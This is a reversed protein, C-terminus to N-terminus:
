SCYEAHWAPLRTSEAVVSMNAINQENDVLRTEEIKALIDRAVDAIRTADPRIASPSVSALGDFRDIYAQISEVTEPISAGPGPFGFTPPEIMQPQEDITACFQASAAELAAHKQEDEIAKYAMAGGIGAVVTTVLSIAIAARVFGHVWGRRRASQMAAVISAILGAPPVLFALIFAVKEAVTTRDLDPPEEYNGTGGGFFQTGANPDDDPPPTSAFTQSYGDGSAPAPAAAPVYAAEPEYVPPAPAVPEATFAPEPTYAPAEPVIPTSAFLDAPVQPSEATPALGAFLSGLPDEDAPTEGVPPAAVPAAPDSPAPSSALRAATDSDQTEFLPGFPDGSAGGGLGVTPEPAPVLPPM